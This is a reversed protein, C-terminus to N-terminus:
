FLYKIDAFTVTKDENKNFECPKLNSNRQSLTPPIELAVVNCTKNATDLYTFTFGPMPKTFDFSVNQALYQAPLENVPSQIEAPKSYQAITRELKINTLKLTFANVTSYLSVGGLLVLVAGLTYIDKKTISRKKYKSALDELYEMDRDYGSM